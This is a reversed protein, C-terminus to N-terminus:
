RKIELIIVFAPRVVDIATAKFPRCRRRRRRRNLRRRSAATTQDVEVRGSEKGPKVRATRGSNQFTGGDGNRETPSKEPVSQIRSQEALCEPVGQSKKSM